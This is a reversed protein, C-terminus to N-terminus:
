YTYTDVVEGAANSLTATDGGTNNWIAQGQGAFYKDDTSDGTGTYVRLIGGAAITYGAPITISHAKLDVLQWRGVDVPAAGDNRIVVYESDNRVMDNGAADYVINWISVSSSGATVATTQTPPTKTPTPKVPREPLGDGVTFGQCPGKLLNAIRGFESEDMSLGWRAKVIVWATVYRCQDSENPPLWNSPDAAGKDQNSSSSVAILSHPDETDNAFAERRAPDWNWAGSDWAEKLPVVHDITVQIAEDFWVGDYVSYWGGTSVECADSVEASGAADRILVEARTDCGDGDLDSWTPFLDRAYGDQNELEIAITQLLDLVLMEGAVAVFVPESSSTPSPVSAVTITSESAFRPVTSGSPEVLSEGSDPRESVGSMVLAGFWLVGVVGVGMALAGGLGSERKKWMGWAVWVLVLGSIFFLFAGTALAAKAWKGGSRWDRDFWRRLSGPPNPTVTM